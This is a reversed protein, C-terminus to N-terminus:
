PRRVFYVWRQLSLFFKILVSVFHRVRALHLALYQGFNESFVTRHKEMDFVLAWIRLSKAMNNEIIDFFLLLNIINIDSRQLTDKLIVEIIQFYVCHELLIM